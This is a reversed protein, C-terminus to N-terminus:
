EGGLVDAFGRVHILEARHNASFRRVSATKKRMKRRQVALKSEEIQVEDMDFGM